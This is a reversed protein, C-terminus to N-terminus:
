CSKDSDESTQPCDSHYQEFTRPSCQEHCAKCFSECRHTDREFADLMTECDTCYCAWPVEKRFQGDVEYGGNELWRVYERFQGDVNYGDIIAM